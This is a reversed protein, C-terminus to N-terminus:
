WPAWFWLVADQGELSGLDISEGALTAFEGHLPSTTEPASSADQAAVAVSESSGGSGCSAALLLAGFLLALTRALRLQMM